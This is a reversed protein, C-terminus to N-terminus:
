LIKDPKKLDRKKLRAATAVKQFLTDGMITIAAGSDLFGYAPIGQIQVRVFQPQSGKDAVRVMSVGPATMDEDSSYLFDKISKFLGQESPCGEATM